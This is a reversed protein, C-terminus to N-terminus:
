LPPVSPRKQELPKRLRPHSRRSGEGAVQGSPSPAGLGRRAHGGQDLGRGAWEGGRSGGSPWGAALGERRVGPREREASGPGRRHEPDWRGWSSRMEAHGPPGPEPRGERGCGASRTGPFNDGSGAAGPDGGGSGRGGAWLQIQSSGPGPADGSAGRLRRTEAARRPARTGRKAPSGGRVGSVARAWLAPARLAPRRPGRPAVAWGAPSPLSAPQATLGPAM